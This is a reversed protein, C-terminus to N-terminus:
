MSLFGAFTAALYVSSECKEEGSLPQGDDACNLTIRMDPALFAAADGFMEEPVATQEFTDPSMLQAQGEALMWLASLSGHCALLQLGQISSLPCGWAGETYLYQYQQAELRVVDVMDDPRRREQQKTKSLVDRLELQVNGLQRGRGVTHEHKLVHFLRGDIDLVNGTRVQM